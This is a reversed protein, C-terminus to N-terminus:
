CNGVPYRLVYRELPEIWMGLLIGAVFKTRKTKLCYLSKGDLELILWSVVIKCPKIVLYMWFNM